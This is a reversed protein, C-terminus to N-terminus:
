QSVEGATALGRRARCIGDVVVFSRIFQTRVLSTRAAAPGVPFRQSSDSRSGTRPMSDGVAAAVLDVFQPQGAELRGRKRHRSRSGHSESEPRGSAGARRYRERDLGAFGRDHNASLGDSSIFHRECGAGTPMGQSQASGICRGCCCDGSEVFRNPDACGPFQM